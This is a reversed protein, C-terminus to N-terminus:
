LYRYARSSKESLAIQFARLCLQLEHRLLAGVENEAGDSLFPAKEASKHNESEVASQYEPNKFKGLLISVGKNPIITVSHRTDENYVEEYVYAHRGTDKGNYANGQRKYAVAPGREPGEGHHEETKDFEVVISAADNWGASAGPQCECLGQNANVFM